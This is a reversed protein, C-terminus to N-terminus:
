SIVCCHNKVNKNYAQSYYRETDQYKELKYKCTENIIDNITSDVCEGNVSDVIYISKADIEKMIDIDEPHIKGISKEGVLNRKNYTDKIDLDIDFNDIYTLTNNSKSINLNIPELKPDFINRIMFLMPKVGMNEMVIKVKSHWERVSEIDAGTNDNYVYVICSANKVYAKILNLFKCTGSLDWMDVKVINNQHKIVKSFFDIGITNSVKTNKHFVNNYNSLLTSKGANSNGVFFMRMTSDVQKFDHNVKVM